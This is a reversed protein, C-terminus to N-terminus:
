KNDLMRKMSERKWVHCVTNKDFCILWILKEMEESKRYYLIGTSGDLRGKIVSSM